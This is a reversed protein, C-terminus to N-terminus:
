LTSSIKEYINLFHVRFLKGRIKIEFLPPNRCTACKVPFAKEPYLGPESLTTIICVGAANACLACYPEDNTGHEQQQSGGASDGDNSRHEPQQSGGAGGEENTV